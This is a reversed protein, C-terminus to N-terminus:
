GDPQEGSDEQKAPIPGYVFDRVLALQGHITALQECERHTLLWEGLRRGADVTKFWNRHVMAESIRRRATEISVGGALWDQVLLSPVPNSADVGNIDAVVTDQGSRLEAALALLSSLEPAELDSCVQYETSLGVSWRVVTVGVLAADVVATDANRDDNDLVVAMLYGLQSMAAARLASEAGGQGDQIAVGEGASTSLGIASQEQDWADICALLLGYETTGETIVVKRALLSSPRSRRLKQVRESSNGLSVISVLGMNNQVVALSEIKAQEVIVPSHTTVLVQSYDEDSRLYDILRVARHPELGDEIEDIVAVSRSGAALQQVALSALRRSGLGFSTLPVVDEYLALNGGMASRSTDLGPRIAEFRGGGIQNARRQVKTVLDALASSEHGDLAVRAARSAAALAEREGGDQASLRGLASTRTWRLQSDTRDDVKFTSFFRRQSASIKHSQGDVREITWQPELSEDVSLQAIVCSDLGDAPDQHLGGDSDLGSQWLGFASEKLLADPVDILVARISIPQSADVGYFDTDSIPINWRDGLLYHIADLITSKGSDGPGVLTVLKQDVPLTWDLSRIGRFNAIQLRQIRMYNEGSDFHDMLRGNLVSLSDALTIRISEDCQNAVQTWLFRPGYTLAFTPANGTILHGLEFHLLLGSV